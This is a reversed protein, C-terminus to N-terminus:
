LSIFRNLIENKKQLFLGVDDIPTIEFLYDKLKESHQFFLTSKDGLKKTQQFFYNFLLERKDPYQNFVESFLSKARRLNGEFLSIIVEIIKVSANPAHQLSLNIFEHADLIKNEELSQLAMEGYIKSITKEQSVNTIKSLQKRYKIAQDWDGLSEYIRCLAIVVKTDERDIRLIEKYSKEAQDIFGGRDFDLALEKLAKIRTEDNINQRAIVSRHINIAKDVEGNTRFLGGLTFYVDLAEKNVEAISLFEKIAKNRDGSILHQTANLFIKSQTEYISERYKRSLKAGPSRDLVFYYYLLVTVVITVVTLLHTRSYEIILDIM